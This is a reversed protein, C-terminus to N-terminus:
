DSFVEDWDNVTLTLLQGRQVELDISTSPGTGTAALATGVAAL